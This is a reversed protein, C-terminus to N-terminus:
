LKKLFVSAIAIAIGRLDVLEWWMRVYWWTPPEQRPERDEEPNGM